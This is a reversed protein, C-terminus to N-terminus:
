KNMNSTRNFIYLIDPRPEHEVWGIVVCDQVWEHWEAPVSLTLRGASTVVWDECVDLCGVPVFLLRGHKLCPHAYRPWAIDNTKYASKLDCKARQPGDHKGAVVPSVGFSSVLEVVTSTATDEVIIHSAFVTRVALKEAHRWQAKVRGRYPHVDANSQALSVSAGGEARRNPAPGRPYRICLKQVVQPSKTLLRM